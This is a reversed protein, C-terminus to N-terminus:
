LSPKANIEKVSSLTFFASENLNFINLGALLAIIIGKEKKLAQAKKFSKQADKKKRIRQGPKGPRAGPFSPFFDPM